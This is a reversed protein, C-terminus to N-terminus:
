IYHFQNEGGAPLAFRKEVGQCILNVRFLFPDEFPGKKRAEFDALTNRTSM